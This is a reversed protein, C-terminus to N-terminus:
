LDRRKHTIKQSFRKLLAIPLCLELNPELKRAKMHFRIYAYYIYLLQFIFIGVYEMNNQTNTETYNKM